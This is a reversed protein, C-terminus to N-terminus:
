FILFDYQKSLTTIEHILDSTFDELVDIHTKLMCIEPGVAHILQILADAKTVDASVSLNTKKNEMLEFLQRAKPHTAAAARAKFEM